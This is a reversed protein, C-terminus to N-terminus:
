VKKGVFIFLWRGLYCFYKSWILYAGADEFGIDKLTSLLDWGYDLFVLSGKGDIPNAHYIPPEIYDIENKENIFARKKSMNSNVQIPVTFFLSGGDKLIRYCERFAISIDPVHEFVDFSLVYDFTMDLFTTNMINENRIGQYCTGLPVLEMLFESGTVKKYKKAFYQFLPTVQETIYIISEEKPNLLLEFLHISARMRSNLSCLPCILRERWNPVITNNIKEWSFLYDFTFDVLKDCIYCRGSIKSYPSNKILDLEYDIRENLILVNSHIYRIFADYSDIRVISLDHDEM